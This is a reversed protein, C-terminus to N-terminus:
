LVIGQAQSKIALHYTKELTKLTAERLRAVLTQPMDEPEAIAKDIAPNGIFLLDFMTEERTTPNDGVLGHSVNM